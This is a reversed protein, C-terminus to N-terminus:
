LSVTPVALVWLTPFLSMFRILLFIKDFISKQMRSIYINLNDIQYERQAM